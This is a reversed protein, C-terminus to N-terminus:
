DFSVQGAGSRDVSRRMPNGAIRVDGSGSVAVNAVESGYARVDGSGMVVVFVDKARLAGADVDGSGSIAVNVLNVKGSAVISGSGSINLDLSKGQFNDLRMAGSGSIRVGKLDPAVVAVKLPKSMSVAGKIAVSLKGGRVDTEVLPLINQPGSITISPISGAAYTAEAPIALEVTDFAGVKRVDTADPGVAKVVKGETVVQGNVIVVNPSNRGSSSQVVTNGSGSVIMSSTGGAVVVNASGAGTTTQVISDGDNTQVATTTSAASSGGSTVVTGNNVAIATGGGSASVTVKAAEDSKSCGALAITMALAVYATLSRQKM